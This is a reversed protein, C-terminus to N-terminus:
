MAWSLCLSVDHDWICKLSESPQFITLFIVIYFVLIKDSVVLTVIWCDVVPKRHHHPSTKARPFFHNWNKKKIKLGVIALLRNKQNRLISFLPRFSSLVRLWCYGCKKEKRHNNSLPSSSTLVKPKVTFGSISLDHHCYIKIFCLSGSKM